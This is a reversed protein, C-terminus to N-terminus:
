KVLKVFRRNGVQVIMNTALKIIQKWDTIRKQNLRVAKQEILRRAESKSAALKVWVLLDIVSLQQQIKTIKVITMQGPIQKERHILDFEKAVQGAATKGHYLAAVEYALRAKSQRPNAGKKLDREIQKIEELSLRTTLYFYKVVLEDILSMIKGYIEAPQDIINIVNGWSTSMKRGDTGELMAFAMIDQPSQHYLQQIVRGAKLNFLQDFGGVEVDCKIAASDYGQMLPYLLERISIEVGRSYREKFNRRALMQQVSFSEALRAVDIFTMASLWESNYRWEVKDLNLIKGLQKKYDKMNERVQEITLFPRKSLKDSPDGILATFDGIILVVQHGLEQFDRLKWLPIARGLHLKPGTPDIGLKIRLSKGSLLRNRLHKAVFVQEVNRTLLEDIKKKNIGKKM